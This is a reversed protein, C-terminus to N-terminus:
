LSRISPLSSNRTPCTEIIMCISGLPYGGRIIRPPIHFLFKPYIFILNLLLSYTIVKQITIPNVSSFYINKNNRIGTLYGFYFFLIIAFNYTYFTIPSHLPWQWPSVTFMVLTISLYILFFKRPFYIVQKPFYNFINHIDRYAM